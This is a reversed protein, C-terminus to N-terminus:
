IVMFPVAVFSYYKLFLNMGDEWYELAAAVAYVAAAVLFVGWLNRKKWEGPVLDTHLSRKRKGSKCLTEYMVVGYHMHLNLLAFLTFFWIAVM